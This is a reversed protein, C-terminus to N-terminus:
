DFAGLEPSRYSFNGGVVGLYTSREERIIELLAKWIGRRLAPSAQKIQKPRCERAQSLVRDM